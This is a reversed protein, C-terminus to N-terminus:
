FLQSYTKINKLLRSNEDPGGNVLLIWIPRIERNAKLVDDYQPDLTLSELDQMHTLLSTELSWQHHVFIALQGTRLEDNLENLKIM